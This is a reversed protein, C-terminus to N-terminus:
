FLHIELIEPIMALVKNHPPLTFGESGWLFIPNFNSTFICRFSLQTNRPILSWNIYTYLPTHKCPQKKLKHSSQFGFFGKKIKVNMPKVNKM